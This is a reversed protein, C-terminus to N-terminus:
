TSSNVTYSQANTGGFTVQTAGTFNTGTIIVSGGSSASIPNFATISPATVTAQVFTFGTKTATGGSTTVSVTGSSGSSVIATIKTSSNVTYSQAATGGFSVGTVGSFNAGTIVVSAGAGASTPSFSTISPALITSDPIFTFGSKTATGGPTTVSITGSSGTGVIATIQTSSDGAFSQADTGGFKVATANSLNTGTIVVSAGSGASTPSFSTITPTLVSDSGDLHACVAV